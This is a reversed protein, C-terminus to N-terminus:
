DVLRGYVVGPCVVRERIWSGPPRGAHLWSPAGADPHRGGIPNLSLYLTQAGIESFGGNIHWFWSYRFRWQVRSSAPVDPVTRVSNDRVLVVRFQRHRHRNIQDALLSRNEEAEVGRRQGRFKSHEFGSLRHGTKTLTYLSCTDWPKVGGLVCLLVSGNVGHGPSPVVPPLGRRFFHPRCGFYVVGM